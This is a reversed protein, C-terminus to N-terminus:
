DYMMLGINVDNFDTMARPIQPIIKKLINEYDDYKNLWGISIEELPIHLWMNQKEEWFMMVKTQLNSLVLKSYKDRYVSDFKGIEIIVDRPLVMSLQSLLFQNRVFEM